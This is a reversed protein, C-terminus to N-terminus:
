FTHEHSSVHTAVSGRLGLRPSLPLLQLALLRVAAGPNGRLGCWGRGRLEAPGNACVGPPVAAREPGCLARRALTPAQLNLTHGQVKTRTHFLATLEHWTGSALVCRLHAFGLICFCSRSFSCGLPHCLPRCCRGDFAACCM